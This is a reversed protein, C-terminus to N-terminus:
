AKTFATRVGFFHRFCHNHWQLHGNFVTKAGLGYGYVYGSFLFLRALRLGLYFGSFVSRNQKPVM